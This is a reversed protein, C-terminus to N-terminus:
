DRMERAEPRGRPRDDDRERRYRDDRFRDNRDEGRGRDGEKGEQMDDKVRSATSSVREYAWSAGQTIRDKIKHKRDLIMMKDFIRGAVRGVKRAVDLDSNIRLAEGVLAVVRMGMTRILDGRANKAIGFMAFAAAGGASGMWTPILPVNGGCFSGILVMCLLAKIMEFDPDGREQPVYKWPNEEEGEMAPPFPKRNGLRCMGRIHVGTRYRRRVATTRRILFIVGLGLSRSMEGYDNRLISMCWFIFGFVLAMMKGQSMLSQGVFGGVAGGVSFSAVGLKVKGFHTSSYRAVADQRASAYQPMSRRNFNNKDDGGKGEELLEEQDASAEGTEPLYEDSADNSSSSPAAKSRSPFKYDIPNYTKAEVATDSQQPPNRISDNASKSDKQAQEQEQAPPQFMDTSVQKKKFLNFGSSKGKPDKKIENNQTQRRSPDMPMRHNSNVNDNANSSFSDREDVDSDPDLNVEDNNVSERADNRQSYEQYRPHDRYSSSDSPPMNTSSARSRISNSSESDRYRDRDNGDDRYGNSNANSRRRRSDHLYDDDVDRRKPLEREPDNYRKRQNYNYDDYGNDRDQRSYEYGDRSSSSPPPPPPPPPGRSSAWVLSPAHLLFLILSCLSSISKPARM